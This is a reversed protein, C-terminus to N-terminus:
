PRAERAAWALTEVSQRLRASSGWASRGSPRRARAVPVSAVPLGTVGVAAVISPARLRVVADRAAPGLAVYAGADAPVDCVRSLAMRHLRGTVHRGWGEYRGHRGAFVAGVDGRALRDLLAPVAEPPDQLDADLCVWASAGEEAALGAALARHPGVNAALATVGIREDAAALGLTVALSADPSADVVFRIRWCWDALAGALRDVLVALTDQNRYVPTVVSVRRGATTVEAATRRM